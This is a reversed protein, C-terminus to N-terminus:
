RGGLYVGECGIKKLGKGDTLLCLVVRGLGVWGYGGCGHVAGGVGGGVGEEEGGEYRGGDGGGEGFGVGDTRELAAVVRGTEEIDQADQRGHAFDRLAVEFGAEILHLLGSATRDARVHQDDQVALALDHSCSCQQHLPFQLNPKFAKASLFPNPSDSVTIDGNKLM